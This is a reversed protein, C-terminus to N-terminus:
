IAALLSRTGDLNVRYGLDFTRAAEGSVIAALPFIVDARRAALAEAMSSASIDAALAAVPWSVVTPVPPPTVDALTMR